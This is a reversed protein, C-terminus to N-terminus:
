KRSVLDVLVMGWIVAINILGLMQAASGMDKAQKSLPHSDYSICDVVAEIASNLLEIILSLLVSGILLARELRDIPLVVALPILVLALLVLQWFAVELRFTAVFGDFSYFCAKWIRKPGGRSKYPSIKLGEM